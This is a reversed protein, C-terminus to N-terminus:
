KRVGLILEVEGKGMNLYKAIEMNNLGQQALNYVESYRSNISVVNQYSKKNRINLSEQNNGGAEVKDDISYNIHINDNVVLPERNELDNYKKDLIGEINLIKEEVESMHEFIQDNKGQIQSIIYDSLKNLEHVLQEADGIIEILDDKKEDLRKESNLISKEEVLIWIFSIILLIIGCLIVGIYFGIM